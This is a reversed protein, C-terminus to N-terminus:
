DILPARAATQLDLVLTLERDVQWFRTATRVDNSRLIRKYYKERLDLRKQDLKMAKAVLDKAVDDTVDPYNAAYERLLDRQERFLAMYEADYEDYVPWFKEAPEGTLQLASRILPKRQGLVDSNLLRSLSDQAFAGAAFAGAILLGVGIRYRM